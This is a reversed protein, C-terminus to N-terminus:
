HQLRMEMQMKAADEMEVFSSRLPKEKKGVAPSLTELESVWQKSIIQLCLFELIVASVLVVTSLVGASINGGGKWNQM